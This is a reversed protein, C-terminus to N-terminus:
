MMSLCQIKTKQLSGDVAQPSAFLFDNPGRIFVFSRSHSPLSEIRALQFSM